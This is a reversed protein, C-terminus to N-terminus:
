ILVRAVAKFSKKNWESSSQTDLIKSSKIGSPVKVHIEEDTRAHLHLASAIVFSESTRAVQVKQWFISLTDQIETDKSM